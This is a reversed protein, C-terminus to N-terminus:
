HSGATPLLQLDELSLCAGEIQPRGWGEGHTPIVLADVAKYVGVFDAESLHTSSTYIRPLRGWVEAESIRYHAAAFVRM